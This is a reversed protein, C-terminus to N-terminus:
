AVEFVSSVYPTFENTASEEDVSPNNENKFFFIENLLL